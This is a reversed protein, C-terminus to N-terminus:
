TIRDQMRQLLKWALEFGYEFRQIVGDRLLDAEDVGGRSASHLRLALDLSDIARGLPTLDLLRPEM